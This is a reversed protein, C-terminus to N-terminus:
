EGNRRLLLDSGDVRRAVALVTATVTGAAARVAASDAVRRFTAEWGGCM